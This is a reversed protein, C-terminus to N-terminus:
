RQSAAQRGKFMFHWLQSEEPSRGAVYTERANSSGARSDWTTAGDRELFSM